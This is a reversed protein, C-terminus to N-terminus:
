MDFSGQQVTTTWTTETYGYSLHNALTRWTTALNTRTGSSCVTTASTNYTQENGSTDTAVITLATATAGTPCPYILSEPLTWEYTGDANPTAATQLDLTQTTGDEAFTGDLYFTKSVNTLTVAIADIDAPVSSITLSLKALIHNVTVNIDYSTKSALITLPQQGFCVDTLTNIVMPKSTFDTGIMSAVYPLGSPNANSICFVSYDGLALPKEANATTAHEARAASQCLGKADLVYYLDKTVADARTTTNRWVNNEISSLNLITVVEGVPEQNMQCSALVWSIIIALFQLIRNM